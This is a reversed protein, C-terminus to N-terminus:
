HKRYRRSKNKENKGEKIKKYDEDLVGKEKGELFLDTILMFMGIVIFIDAINFVPFNYNFIRFSLFDTVRGYIIRDIMNGVIGGVLFSYSLINLKTNRFDKRSCNFIFLLFLLSLIILFLTKGNLISWAAGDNEVHTIKFFNGLVKIGANINLSTRIIIKSIQDMFVILFTIVLIKNIKTM